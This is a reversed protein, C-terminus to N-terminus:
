PADPGGCPLEVTFTAGRGPGDSEAAVSGGHAQAIARVIALGIGSGGHARDRAADVRYFREFLHPLDREHIGDGTDAVALVIRGPGAGAATVTVGGGAPTHALANDLLNGLVQALRAPDARVTPLGDEVHARLSVGGDDARPRVALVALRVAAGPDVDRLDLSLGGGEARTVAALDEALRALREGQARLLGITQPNWEAVGDEIAELYATLTAVPTRLEHAVDSLLRARLAEGAELRDAMGNFAHAMAAFEGGLRPEPVRVDMRGAELESAAGALASLSGGIRRTFAVAVALAALTGLALGIGLALAGAERFAIEAHGAADDGASAGAQVLHDHFVIPGILAAVLGATLAATALVAVLGLLLRAQLGPRRM